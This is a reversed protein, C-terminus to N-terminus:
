TNEIEIVHIKKIRIDAHFFRANEKLKIKNFIYACYLGHLPRMVHCENTYINYYTPIAWSISTNKQM